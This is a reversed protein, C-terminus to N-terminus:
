YAFATAVHTVNGRNIKDFEYSNPNNIGRLVIDGNEGYTSDIIHFVNSKTLVMMGREVTDNKGLKKMCVKTDEWAVPRMSPGNIGAVLDCQKRNFSYSYNGTSPKPISGYPRRIESKIVKESKDITEKTINPQFDVTPNLSYLMGVTLGIGLLLPYILHNKNMNGGSEEM